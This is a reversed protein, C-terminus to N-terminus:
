PPQRRVVLLGIDDHPQHSVHHSVEASLRELLTHPDAPAQVSECDTLRFFEGARNRAETLGDTYFLVTEDPQLIISFPIREAAALTGFGLPL